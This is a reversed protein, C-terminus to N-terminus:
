EPRLAGDEARILVTGEPADLHPLLSDDRNLVVGIAVFELADADRRPLGEAYIHWGGDPQAVGDVGRPAHREARGIRATGDILEPAVRARTFMRAEFADGEPDGARPEGLSIVHHDEFRVPDGLALGRLAVPVNDLRGFCGEADRGDFIVWMREVVPDRPNLSEFMMKVTDGPEIAAIQAPTPTFFTYPSDQKRPRPDLLTWGHNRGRFPFLFDFM